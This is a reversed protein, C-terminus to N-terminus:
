IEFEELKYNAYYRGSKPVFRLVCFDPDTYSGEPYAGKFRNQWYKKKITMDSVITMEGKLMCGKWFLKRSYFYVCSKPNNEIIATFHSSTNTCFYIEDLSDRYKGPVVAKTLPYGDEGVCSLVFTNVNQFLHKAKEKLSM